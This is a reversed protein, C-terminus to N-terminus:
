SCLSGEKGRRGLRANDQWPFSCAVIIRASRAALGHDGLHLCPEWAEVGAGVRGSALTWRSVQWPPAWNCRRSLLWGYSSYANQRKFFRFSMIREKGSAHGPLCAPLSGPALLWCALTTSLTSSLNYGTDCVCTRLEIAKARPLTMDLFITVRIM